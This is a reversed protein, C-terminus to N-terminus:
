CSEMTLVIDCYINRYEFTKAKIQHLSIDVYKDRNIRNRRHLEVCNSPMPQSVVNALTLKTKRGNSEISDRVQSGRETGISSWSSMSSPPTRSSSIEREKAMSTPIGVKWRSVRTSSRNTRFFSLLWLCSGSAYIQIDLGDSQHICSGSSRWCTSSTEQKVDIRQIWFDVFGRIWSSLLATSNYLFYGFETLMSTKQTRLRTPLRYASTELHRAIVFRKSWIPM